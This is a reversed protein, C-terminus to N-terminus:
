AKNGVVAQNLREEIRKKYRLYHLTHLGGKEGVNKMRSLDIDTIHIPYSQGARRHGIIHQAVARFVGGGHEVTSFERGNVYLTFRTEAGITEAIVQVSFYRAADSTPEPELRESQFGGGQRLKLVHFEARLEATAGDVLNSAPIDGMRRSPKGAGPSDPLASQRLRVSEFFQAYHRLLLATNFFAVEDSFLAGNEDLVYVTARKGSPVFYFQVVDARNGHFIERLPMDNLALPDVTTATFGDTQTGLYRLLETFSGSFDHSVVDGTALLAYYQQGGRLLYRRYRASGPSTFWTTVEDFLTLIRRTITDAHGPSFCRCIGPGTMLQPSRAVWRLHECLCALLGELGHFKFTMIERWSTVVMYDIVRVLNEHWGSYSLADGRASTLQKGQRTFHALPDVDLNIFTSAALLSPQRALDDVRTGHALERPFHERLYTALAEVDRSDVTSDSACVLMRTNVSLLGNFHCWAIVELLTWARKLANGPPVEGPRVTGRFLLWFEQDPSPQFQHISLHSETIDDSIGSNVLDVKGAKHEFVTFLKRGLITMDRKSVLSTEANRRAFASLLRYSATLANVVVKQEEMVRDVKWHSRADLESAQQRDWGWGDVISQLLERRTDGPGRQWDRGLRINAKYYFCCRALHLRERDGRGLLYGEVQRLLLVYPDLTDLQNMGEHILRKYRVSLLDSAPFEAAYRELLLIKLVSKHPSAIGKFLQWLTAGLFEDAGIDAVPGFDLYDDRNMLRRAVLEDLCGDYDHEREVPVLWWAPARGAILLATRYFEDLLLHRQTSGSSESSLAEVKGERLSEATLPFFHAELGLTDAWASIAEAKTRLRAVQADELAPDHCLWIDLDSHSSQGITGTSGMLYIARIPLSPVARRQFTFARVHQRARQLTRESVTYDAVGSPTDSGVYGPMLPHNTHFLLPLLELFDQQRPSLQERVRLLRERNINVFRDRVKDVSTWDFATQPAQASM